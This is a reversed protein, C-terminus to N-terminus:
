ADGVGGTISVDHLSHTPIEDNVYRTSRWPNHSNDPVEPYSLASQAFFMVGWILLSVAVGWWARRPLKDLWLISLLLLPLLGPLAYRALVIFPMGAMDSAATWEYTLYLGFVALVWGALLLILDMSFVSQSSRRYLAWILAALGSLLLPFGVLWAVATQGINNPVSWLSFGVPLETYQFGFSFPAGFVANQYILLGVLPVLLGLFFCGAAWLTENKRGSKYLRVHLYIFHILFVVCVWVNAYSAFVGCGLGLAALFLVGYAARRSLEGCRLCYYIYLGGGMGLFSAAAFSFFFSRQLM